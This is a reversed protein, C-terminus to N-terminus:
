KSISKDHDNLHKIEGELRGISRNMRILAPYIPIIIAVVVAIVVIGDM